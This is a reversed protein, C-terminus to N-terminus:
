SWRSPFDDIISAGCLLRNKFLDDPDNTLFTRSAPQVAAVDPDTGPAPLFRSSGPTTWAHRAQASVPLEARLNRATPFYCPGTERFPAPAKDGGVFNDTRARTGFSMHEPSATAIDANVDRRRLELGIRIDFVCFELSCSSVIM